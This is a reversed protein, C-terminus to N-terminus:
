LSGLARLARRPVRLNATPRPEPAPTQGPRETAREACWWRRNAREPVRQRRTAHAVHWQVAGPTCFTGCGAPWRPRRHGLGCRGTSVAARDPSLATVLSPETTLNTLEDPTWANRPAVSPQVAPRNSPHSTGDRRVSSARPTTPTSVAFRRSRSCGGGGPVVAGGEVHRDRLPRRRQRLGPRRGSAARRPEQDRVNPCVVVASQCTRACATPTDRACPAV